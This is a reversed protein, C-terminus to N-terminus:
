DPIRRPVVNYEGKDVGLFAAHAPRAHEDGIRRSWEGVDRQRYVEVHQLLLPDIEQFDGSGDSLNFPIGDQLLTIGRLHFGRSLGSGRISLRVEEGFRPQVFIGPTEKLVDKLNLAYTQQYDKAAVVSVAGPIQRVDQQAERLSPSTLTGASYLPHVTLHIGNDAGAGQACFAMVLAAGLARAFSKRM